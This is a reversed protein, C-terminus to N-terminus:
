SPSEIIIQFPVFSREPVTLISLLAFFTKKSKEGEGGRSLFLENECLKKLFQAQSLPPQMIDTTFM